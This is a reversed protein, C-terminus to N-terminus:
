KFAWSDFLRRKARLVDVVNRFDGQLSAIAKNVRQKMDLDIVKIVWLYRLMEELSLLYSSIKEASVLIIRGLETLEEETLQDLEDELCRYVDHLNSELVSFDAIILYDIVRNMQKISRKKKGM